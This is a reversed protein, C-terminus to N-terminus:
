GVRAIIDDFLLLLLLLRSSEGDGVNGEKGVIGMNSGSERM